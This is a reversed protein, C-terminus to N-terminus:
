VETSKPVGTQVVAVSVDTVGIANMCQLFFTMSFTGRSIKNAIAGETDTVGLVKLKVVLVKYSIGRRALEGKLLLKAERDWNTM